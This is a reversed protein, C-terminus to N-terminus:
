PLPPTGSMWPGPAAQPPYEAELPRMLFEGIPVTGLALLSALTIAACRRALRHREAIIALLTAAMLVALWTEVMLAYGVLKSILFIVTDM